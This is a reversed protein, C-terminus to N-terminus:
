RDETRSAFPATAGSRRNSPLDWPAFPNRLDAALAALAPTHRAIVGAMTAREIWALGEATYVEPRFDDTFAPDSKLRRSAMLVFIRFATESFGFGEPLPEAYLGVMLDVEEVDRYVGALERAAAADGGTLAPFDAAPALRLMRRFDNYRPVGRERDRVIDIAGLDVHRASGATADARSRSLARMTDPYNHLKLLGPHGVAFSAILDERRHREVVARAAPGAMEPMTLSEIEGGSDASVLRFDDPILPHMRYV